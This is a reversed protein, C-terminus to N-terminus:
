KRSEMNSLVSDCLRPLEQAVTSRQSPSDAQLLLFCYFIGFPVTLKSLSASSSYASGPSGHCMEACTCAKYISTAKPLSGKTHHPTVTERNWGLRAIGNPPIPSHLTLTLASLSTLGWFLPTAASVWTVESFRAQQNPISKAQLNYGDLKKNKLSFDIHYWSKGEHKPLHCRLPTM